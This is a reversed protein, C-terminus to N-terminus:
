REHPQTARQARAGDRDSQASSETASPATMRDLIRKEIRDLNDKNRGGDILTTSLRPVSTLTVECRGESTKLIATIKEGWTLLNITTHGTLVGADLDDIDFSSVGLIEMGDRVERFVERMDGVVTLSRKHHVSLNAGESGMKSSMIVQFIGLLFTMSAGFFLGSVLGGLAGIILGYDLIFLMSMLVGFPISTGLFLRYGLPLAALKSM